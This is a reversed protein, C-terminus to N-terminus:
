ETLWRLWAPVQWVTPQWTWGAKTIAAIIPSKLEHLDFKYSYSLDPKLRGHEDLQLGFVRQQEKQFFVVGTAARWNISAGVRGASWDFEAIDDTARVIRAAEDLTLRIRFTKTMGHTRALDIWKADAYRWEAILDNSSAGKSIAFPVDLDNIAMLRTVLESQPVTPAGAVPQASACWGIGKFFWLVYISVLSLVGLLKMSPPAFFRALPQLAPLLPARPPANLAPFDNGITSAARRAAAAEKTLGSWVFLQRPTRLMEIYDGQMRTARWGNEEDGSSNRLQFGRHYAGAARKTEADGPFQAILVTEGSMTMGAEAVEAEDLIGPLGSKAERIFEAPIGSGFLKERDVFRGDRVALGAAPQVPAPVRALVLQGIGFPIVVPLFLGAIFVLPRLSAGAARMMIAILSLVLLPGLCLFLAAVLGPNAQLINLM